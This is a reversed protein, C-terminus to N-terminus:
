SAAFTSKQAAAGSTAPAYVSCNSLLRNGLKTVVSAAFLLQNIAITPIAHNSNTVKMTTRPMRTVALKWHIRTNMSYKMTSPNAIAANTFIAPPWAATAGTEPLQNLGAERCSRPVTAM